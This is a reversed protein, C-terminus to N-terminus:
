HKDVSLEASSEGSWEGGGEETGCSRNTSEDIPSPLPRRPQLLGGHAKASSTLSAPLAGLGNQEEREEKLKM